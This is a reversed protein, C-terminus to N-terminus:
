YIFPYICLVPLSSAIIVSYRLVQALYLKEVYDAVDAANMNSDTLKTSLLLERLFSQLPMLDLDYLYLLATYFNNWHSVAYYLGVVAIIPKSLPLVVKWLYQLANAGDLEAAEQLSEPISNMFYTRTILMNYVSCAAPLIMAWRTNLIGLNKVVLYSPIMGGSFYMTIMLMIMVGNRIKFDKRSLPYAACVTMVLNLATGTITYFLTNRYGVWISKYNLLAEYAVATIGKPFFVINGSYVELPNSISAIVVFWLPYTFIFLMLIMILTNVIDFIKDSYTRRIVASTERSM